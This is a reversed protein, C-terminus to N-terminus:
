VPLTIKLLKVEEYSISANFMLKEADAMSMLQSSGWGGQPLRYALLYYDVTVPLAVEVINPM